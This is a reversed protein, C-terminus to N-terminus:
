LYKKFTAATIGLALAFLVAFPFIVFNPHLSIPDPFQVEIVTQLPNNQAATPIPLIASYRGVQIAQETVEEALALAPLWMSMAMLVRVYGPLGM